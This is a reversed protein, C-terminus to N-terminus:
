DGREQLRDILFGASSGAIVFPLTVLITAWHYPKAYRWMLRMNSKLKNWNKFWSLHGGSSVSLKHWVKAKPQVTLKYGARQARICWDADEGYMFYSEDLIGIKEIVQRKVLLCCGTIYDTEEVSEFQGQDLQRLGVHSIWGKWWEIMGGAFWIRTPDDHYYIKAGVMGIEPDCEATAILESLFEKEVVTDNNLLLIYDANKGIAYRIGVNNGGAFRLNTENSMVEINPLFKQVEESTGDASANDIVLIRFNAYTVAQLSRLCELTDEKGNWTLVVIYVLPSSMIQSDAMM